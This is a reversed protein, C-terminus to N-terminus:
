QLYFGTFLNAEYGNPELGLAQQVANVASDPDAKAIYVGGLAIHGWAFDPDLEVAKRALEFAQTLDTSPSNSYQFRVQVSLNFALGAYGGAFNSEAYSTTGAQYTLPGARRCSSMTHTPVRRTSRTCGRTKM